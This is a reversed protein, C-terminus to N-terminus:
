FSLFFLLALNVEPTKYQLDMEDRADDILKEYKVADKELIQVKTKLKLNEDRLATISNKLVLVEEYLREKDQPIQRPLLRDYNRRNIHFLRWWNNVM